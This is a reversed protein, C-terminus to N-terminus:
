RKNQQPVGIRPMRIYVPVPVLRLPELLGLLKTFIVKVRVPIVNVGRRAGTLPNVIFMFRVTM